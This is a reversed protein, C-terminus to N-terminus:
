DRWGRCAAPNHAPLDDEWSLRLMVAPDKAKRRASMREPVAPSRHRALRIQSVTSPLALDLQCVRGKWCIPRNGGHGATIRRVDRRAEAWYLLVEVEDTTARLDGGIPNMAGHRSPVVVAAVEIDGARQSPRRKQVDARVLIRGSVQEEEEITR